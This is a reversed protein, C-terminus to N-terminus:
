VTVTVPLEPSGVIRVAENVTTGASATVGAFPTKPATTETVPFAKPDFAVVHVNVEAGVPSKAAPVEEHLMTVGPGLPLPATEPVNVTAM